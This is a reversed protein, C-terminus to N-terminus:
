IHGFLGEGSLMERLGRMNLKWSKLKRSCGMDKFTLGTHGVGKTSPRIEDRSTGPPWIEPTKFSIIPQSCAHSDRPLFKWFSNTWVIPRIPLPRIGSSQWNVGTLVALNHALWCSHANSLETLLSQMRHQLERLFTPTYAYLLSYNSVVRTHGSQM